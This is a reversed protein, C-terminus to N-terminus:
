GVASTENGQLGTAEKMEIDELAKSQNIRESEPLIPEEPKVNCELLSLWENIYYDERFFDTNEDVFKKIFLAQTAENM